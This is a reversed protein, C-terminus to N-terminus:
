GLHQETFDMSTQSVHIGNEFVVTLGCFDLDAVDIRERPAQNFQYEFEILGNLGLQAIDLLAFLAADHVLDGGGGV